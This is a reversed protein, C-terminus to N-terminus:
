EPEFHIPYVVTVVGHEPPPFMTKEIDAVICEAVDCDRLTLRELGAHTVRGTSGILFRVVVDGAAEKDRHLAQKYCDHYTEFHSRVMEQVAKKPMHGLQDDNAKRLECTAEAHDPWALDPDFGLTGDGVVRIPLVLNRAQPSQHPSQYSEVSAQICALLSCDRVTGGFTGEVHVTGNPKENVLLTVEGPPGKCNREASLQLGLGRRERLLWEDEDGPPPFQSTGLNAGCSASYDPGEAATVQGPRPSGGFTTIRPPAQSGCALLTAGVLTSVKTGRSM